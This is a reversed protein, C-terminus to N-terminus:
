GEKETKIVKNFRKKLYDAKMKNLAINQQRPDSKTREVLEKAKDVWEKEILDVDDAIQPNNDNSPLSSTTPETTTDDDDDTTQTASTQDDNTQQQSSSGGSQPQDKVIEPNTEGNIHEIRPLINLETPESSNDIKKKKVELDDLEAQERTIAENFQNKGTEKM